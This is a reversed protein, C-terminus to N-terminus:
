LALSRLYHYAGRGFALADAPEDHEAFVHRVGARRAAALIPAFAVIGRGLDTMRHDPPGASDKAHVLTFRGPRAAFYAQPDGGGKVTWYLDLEFTVLAPDTAELLLDLPRRGALPALEYDHNHYGFRLGAARAREGARNFREALREWGDLDARVGPPTWAVLVTHHGIAAAADLVQDWRADLTEFPVHAAPAALGADALAAKVAAPPHGFYGAFEVEDYGIAAIRRLTGPLERAMETRVTYLQLGIRDLGRRRRTACAPWAAAIATGAAAGLFARRHM